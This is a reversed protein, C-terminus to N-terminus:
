YLQETECVYKGHVKDELSDLRQLFCCVTKLTAPVCKNDAGISSHKELLMENM